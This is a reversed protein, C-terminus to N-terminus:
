RPSGAVEHGSLSSPCDSTEDEGVWYGNADHWLNCQCLDCTPLAPVTAVIRDAVRAEYYTM